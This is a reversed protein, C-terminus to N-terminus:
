KWSVTESQISIFFDAKRSLENSFVTLFLGHMKVCALIIM